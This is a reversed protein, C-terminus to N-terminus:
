RRSSRRGCCADEVVDVLALLQHDLRELPQDLLALEDGIAVVAEEAGHVREPVLLQELVHDCRPWMGQCGFSAVKAGASAASHPAQPQGLRALAEGDQAQARMGVVDLDAGAAGDQM